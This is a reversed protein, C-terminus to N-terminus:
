MLVGPENLLNRLSPVDRPPADLRELFREWRENDVLFNADDGVIAEAASLANELV